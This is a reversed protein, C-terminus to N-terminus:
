GYVPFCCLDICLMEIMRLRAIWQGSHMVINSTLLAVNGAGITLRAVRSNLKRTTRRAVSIGVLAFELLSALGTM